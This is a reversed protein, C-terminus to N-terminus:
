WLWPGNCLLNQRTHGNGAGRGGVWGRVEQLQRPATAVLGKLVQLTHYRAYFNGLGAPEQELLSLLLPLGEQTRVLQQANIAAAQPHAALALCM